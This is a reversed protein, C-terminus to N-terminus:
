SVQVRGNEATINISKVEPHEYLYKSVSTMVEKEFVRELNRVGFKKSYGVELIYDLFTSNFNVEIGRKNFIKLSKKLIVNTLINRAVEKEINNFIIVEDIRNVFEVPFIDTLQLEAKTQTAGGFGMSSNSVGIANSTMVITVNSFYIVQGKTDTIKGEDFVQLFLKLVEPHAKEIEDLLLVCSPNELIKSSFFPVNDHGVYGPPSGILKSVSHPETFESMNVNILKDESGFLFCAIMKALYTKGVGSPGAFLFVGDPQEPKLDLKQKTMRIQNAIKDIAEDQGYIREKLFKEMELLHKGKDEETEIFKVGVMEGVINKITDKDVESKGDLACRSFSKELVDIAKDPFVRNKVEEETLQVITELYEDRIDIKYHDVMKPKLQRVISLTADRDLEGIMITYFRRDLASDKKFYKQYEETTTAGICRLEGRALAPKLINAADLSSGETEGAGLITHIEDIFLIVNEKEQLEEVIRKLRKEFDGRYNTGAVLMGMNIEIIEMNKFFAPVDGTVIKRALGEVVATKGVGAKGILLPNNKKMKFLVELISKIEKDRGLVEFLKGEKALKTINRGFKESYIEEQEQDQKLEIKPPVNVTNKLSADDQVDGEFKVKDQYTSPKLDEDKLSSGKKIEDAFEDELRKKEDSAPKYEPDSELAKEFMQYAKQKKEMIDFILGINYLSYKYKSDIELAKTYYYLATFYEKEDYYIIGLNNLAGIYKPDCQLAKMYYMKAKDTLGKEKYLKGLNYYPFKYKADGKISMNFYEEAKDMDGNDFFYLGLENLAPHYNSKIKISKEFWSRAEERTNIDDPNKDEIALGINYYAWYYEPDVEISKKYCRIANDFDPIDFYVNGADNWINADDQVLALCKEYFDVSEKLNGRSNEIQAIKQLSQYNNPEKEIIEKFLKMANDYDNNYFYDNAKEFLEEIDRSM